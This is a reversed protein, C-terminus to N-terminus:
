SSAPQPRSALRALPRALAGLAAAGPGLSGTRKKRNILVGLAAALLPHIHPGALYSIGEAVSRLAASRRPHIRRRVARNIGTTDDRKAALGLGGALAAGSLATIARPSTM